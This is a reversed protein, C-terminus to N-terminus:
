DRNSSRGPTGHAVTPEAGGPRITTTARRQPPPKASAPCPPSQGDPAQRGATPEAGGFRTM